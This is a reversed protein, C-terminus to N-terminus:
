SKMALMTPFLCTNEAPNFEMWGWTMGPSFLKGLLNRFHARTQPAYKERQKQGFFQQVHMGSLDCFKHNGLTPLFHKAVM